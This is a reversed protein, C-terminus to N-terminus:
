PCFDNRDLFLEGCLLLPCLTHKIKIWCPSEQQILSSMGEPTTFYSWDYVPYLRKM